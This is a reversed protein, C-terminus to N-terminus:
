GARGSHGVGARGSSTSPHAFYSTDFPSNFNAADKSVNKFVFVSLILPM